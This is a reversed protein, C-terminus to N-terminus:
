KPHNKRIIENTLVDIITESEPSYDPVIDRKYYDFPEALKSPAGTTAKQPATFDERQLATSLIAIAQSIDSALKPDIDFVTANARCLVDLCTIFIEAPESQNTNNQM